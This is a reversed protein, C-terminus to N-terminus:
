VAQVSLEAFPSEPAQPGSMDPTCRVTLGVIPLSEELQQCCRKVVIPQRPMPVLCARHADSQEVHGRVSFDAKQGITALWFKKRYSNCTMEETINRFAVCIEANDSKKHKCTM